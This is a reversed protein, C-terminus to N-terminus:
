EEVSVCQVNKNLTECWGFEKCLPQGSCWTLRVTRHPVAHKCTELGAVRNQLCDKVRDCRVKM